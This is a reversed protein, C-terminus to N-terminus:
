RENTTRTHNEITALDDRPNVRPLFVSFCAGGEKNNSAEIWGGHEEIIRSSVALGLGTGSGVEKTTFFPDFLHPLNQPQIGQGTDRVHVTAFEKGDKKGDRHCGNITWEIQMQGGDPMAQIANFCINSFVQHLLEPDGQITVDANDQLKISVNARAANTEILESTGTLLQKLGIPRLRLNYPRSLTLLQRVIRAIHETQTRIITLNRQRTEVTAEPQNLLQKARGDIVQLPAGIEHAVGAALRGVTALRENHRLQRELTLREEMERLTEARQESLHDAMRNFETALQTLEGGGRPVIVRYNFDGRGLAVAGGLLEQIPLTLNYHTVIAVILFIALCLIMAKQTSHRRAQSIEQNVFSIPQAIEMAGLIRGESRLPLLVSFVDEDKLRRIHEIQNGNAIVQKAEETDHIVEAKLTNSVIQVQGSQNFLLVGYIRENQGLRNILQQADLTRGTRFDEELAIQLTIAHARVEDRAALLLRDERQQLSIYTAVFMVVSVTITLFLILRTSTKM